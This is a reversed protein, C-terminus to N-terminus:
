KKVGLEDRMAKEVVDQLKNIKDLNEKIVRMYEMRKDRDETLTLYKNSTTRVTALYTHVTVETYYRLLIDLHKRIASSLIVKKEYYYSNLDKIETQLKEFQGSLVDSQNLRVIQELLDLTVKLEGSLKSLHLIAERQSNVLGVKISSNASIKSAVISVTAGIAVSFLSVVVAAWASDM